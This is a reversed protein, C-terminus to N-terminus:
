TRGPLLYTMSTSHPKLLLLPSRPEWRKQWPCGMHSPETHWIRADTSDPYTSLAAGERNQRNNSIGLKGACCSLFEAHIHTPQWDARTAVGDTGRVLHGFRLPFTTVDRRWRRNKDRAQVAFSNQRKDRPHNQLNSVFHDRHESQTFLGIGCFHTRLRGAPPEARQCFGSTSRWNECRLRESMLSRHKRRVVVAYPNAFLFEERVDTAWAPRRLVGFLIDLDGARLADLLADYPGDLVHVFATPFLVCM